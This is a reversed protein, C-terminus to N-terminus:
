RKLCQDRCIKSAMESEGTEPNSLAREVSFLSEGVAGLDDTADILALGATLVETQGDEAGNSVGFLGGVSLSRHDVHRGGERRVRDKFRDVSFHRQDNADGFADWHKVHHADLARKFAAFAAEDPWVAWTDDRRASAFDADHRAVDM